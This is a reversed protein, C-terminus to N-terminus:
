LGGIQKEKARQLAGNIKGLIVDYNVTIHVASSINKGVALGGNKGVFAKDTRGPAEMTVYKGSRGPVVKFGKAEYWLIVLERRPLSSTKIKKGTKQCKEVKNEFKRHAEPAKPLRM